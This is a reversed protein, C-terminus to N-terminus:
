LLIHTNHTTKVNFRESVRVYTGPVDLLIYWIMSVYRTCVYMLRRALGRDAPLALAIIDVVTTGTDVALLFCVPQHGSLTFLIYRTGTIVAIEVAPVETKM